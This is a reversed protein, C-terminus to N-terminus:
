FLNVGRLFLANKHSPFCDAVPAVDGAALTSNADVVLLPNGSAVLVSCRNSCCSCVVAFHCLRRFFSRVFLFFLHQKSLILCLGLSVVKLLCLVGVVRPLDDSLESLSSSSCVRM